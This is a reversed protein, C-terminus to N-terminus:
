RASRHSSCTMKWGACTSTSWDPPFASVDRPLCRRRLPVSEAVYGCMFTVTSTSSSSSRATLDWAAPSDMVSFAANSCASRCSRASGAAAPPPVGGIGTNSPCPTCGSTSRVFPTASRFMMSASGQLGLDEYGGEACQRSRQVSAAAPRPLIPRKSSDSLLTSRTNVCGRSRGDAPAPRPPMLRRRYRARVAPIPVSRGAPPRPRRRWSMAPLKPQSARM